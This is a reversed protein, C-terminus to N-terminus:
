AAVMRRVPRDADAEDVGAIIEIRRIAWHSFAASVVFVATVLALADADAQLSTTSWAIIRYCVAVVALANVIGWAVALRLRVRDVRADSESVRSVEHLLWPAGVVNVLPVISLAYVWATHRPEVFGASAFGRRRVQRVWRGFAVTTVVVAVLAMVGFVLVAISTLWDIWAPIPRTRNVVGVTYRIAHMVGAVGLVLMALRLARVLEDTATSVADASGGVRAQDFTQVLGWRPVNPYSPTPRPQASRPARPAPM